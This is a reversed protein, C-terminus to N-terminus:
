TLSSIVKDLTDVARELEADTIVLAPLFRIVSGGRGGSEIIMGHEFCTLKTERALAGDAVPRGHRDLEDPKVMEIGWMLGMGRVDGVVAHKSKLADLRQSLWEGQRNVKDLLDDSDILDLTALGAAFALQNGRFTGAHAGATWRDYKEHYVVMAVPMGGGIAKSVLVADPEIGAREFSFMYGTRGVGTQIEDIILPIDREATIKRLGQLWEISAPIVGGEGQITECIIAAPKCIGSEVDDLQDALMSLSLQDTEASFKGWPCRFRYPFPVHHVNPLLTGVSQKAGINGTLALAGATMGHYGGQFSIIDSRGTATKFLKLAAETADAGSPGCFQIRATDAMTGPLIGILRDIFQRKIPTTIDLVQLPGGTALYDTIAKVIVPHNHGTALTGACALCDLYTKGEVDTLESLYGKAMSTTIWSAYSRASSEVSGVRSHDDEELQDVRASNVSNLVSAGSPCRVSVANAPRAMNQYYRHAPIAM